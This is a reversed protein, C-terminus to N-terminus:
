HWARRVGWAAVSANLLSGLGVQGPSHWARILWRTTACCRIHGLVHYTLDRWRVHVGPAHARSVFARSLADPSVGRARRLVTRVCTAIDSSSRTQAVYICVRWAGAYDDATPRTSLRPALKRVLTASSPLILSDPDDDVWREDPDRREIGDLVTHASAFRARPHVRWRVRRVLARWSMAATGPITVRGREEGRRRM